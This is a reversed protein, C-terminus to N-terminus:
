LAVVPEMVTFSHDQTSLRVLAGIPMLLNDGYHGFPFDRVVPISLPAFFERLLLEIEAESGCNKLKGIVVGRIHKLRGSLRLTTLMRDIRYPREEVEEWFWIGGDIWFDYPTGALAETLSLCGGFLPGEAVGELAVQSKSFRYTLPAEGGLMAWFWEENAKSLGDHFDLNVMPGHFSAVGSRVAMAQHLATLDSFGIVPRPNAAIADYDIRDLIRMAGYGGRAFLFGDFQPDRLFRNVIELREDDTGALYGHSGLRAINDALTIRLGRAELLRKGEEIRPLESPSSIALVALHSNRHIPRPRRLRM